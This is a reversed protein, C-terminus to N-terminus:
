SIEMQYVTLNDPFIDNKIKLKDIKEPNISTERAFDEISQQPVEYKTGKQDYHTLIVMKPGIEKILKEAGKPDITYGNGGIPLVLIDIMGLQELQNDSLKPLIHGLVAIMTTGIALRYITASHKGEEDMNARAAVGKVSVESIEYEGPGDIIFADSTKQNKMIMKSTYIDIDSKAGVSQRGVETLNDDIVIRAKKTTIVLCNAGKYQFEM